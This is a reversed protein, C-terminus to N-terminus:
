LNYKIFFRKNSCSMISNIKYNIFPFISFNPNILFMGFAFSSVSFIFSISFIINLNAGTKSNATIKIIQYLWNGKYLIDAQESQYKGSLM